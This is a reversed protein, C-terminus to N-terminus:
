FRVHVGRPRVDAECPEVVVLSGFRVHGIDGGSAEFDITRGLPELRSSEPLRPNDRSQPRLAGMFPAFERRQEVRRTAVQTLRM